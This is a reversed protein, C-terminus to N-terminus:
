RVCPGKTLVKSFAIEFERVSEGSSLWKGLLLAKVAAKLECNDWYPGSYYVPTKFPIFNKKDNYVYRLVSNDNEIENIFNDLYKEVDM